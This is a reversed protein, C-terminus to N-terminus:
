VENLRLQQQQNNGAHQRGALQWSVSRLAINRRINMQPAIYKAAGIGVSPKAKGGVDSRVIRDDQSAFYEGVATWARRLLDM